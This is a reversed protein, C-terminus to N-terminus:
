KISFTVQLTTSFQQQGAEINTKEVNGASDAYALMAVAGRYNPQPISPSENVHIVDGVKFGLKRGLQHAKDKADVAAIDLCKLYEAQSKEPSLFTSLQGVNQIGNKTALVLTEGIRSIESTSVELTLSVKTGRDIYRDKEYDRVPYVSYNTNKLDLDSLKLDSIQKKLLNIQDNTKKVAEQQNKSQNEATFTITGRDPTVKINCSGQVMVSSPESAWAPSTILTLLLLFKM